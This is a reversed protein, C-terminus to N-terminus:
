IKISNPDGVYWTGAKTFGFKRQLFKGFRSAYPRKGDQNFGDTAGLHIESAGMAKSWSIFMKLLDYAVRSKRHEPYTYAGYDAAFYEKSFSFFELQGLFASIIEGEKNVGVWCFKNPRDICTTIMKIVSEDDFTFKNYQDNSEYMAKVIKFLDGVDYYQAERIGNM